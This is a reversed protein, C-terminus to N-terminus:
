GLLVIHVFFSYSAPYCLVHWHTHVHRLSYNSQGPGSSGEGGMWKANEYMHQYKLHQELLYRKRLDQSFTHFSNYVEVHCHSTPTQSVYLVKAGVWSLWMLLNQSYKWNNPAPIKTGPATFNYPGPQWSTRQFPCQKSTRRMDQSVKLKNVIDKMSPNITDFLIQM